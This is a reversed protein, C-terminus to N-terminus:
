KIIGRMSDDLWSATSPDEFVGVIGGGRIKSDKLELEKRAREKWKEIAEIIEVSKVVAGTLDQPKWVPKGNKDREELKVTEFYQKMQKAAVMASNLFAMSFTEQVEIYKDVAADIVTDPKWGKQTIVDNTIAEDKEKNSSYKDYITDYYGKWFVFSLEELANVKNKNTDRDWIAKFEKIMLAEPTVVLNGKQDIELIKM